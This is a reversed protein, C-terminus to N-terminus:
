LSIATWMGSLKLSEAAWLLLGGGGVERHLWEPFFLASTWTLMVPVSLDWYLLQNAGPSPGHALHREFPDM